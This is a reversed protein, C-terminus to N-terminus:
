QFGSFRSRPLCLTSALHLFSSYLPYHHAQTCVFVSRSVQLGDFIFRLSSSDVNKHSCFAEFVKSMPDHMFIKFKKAKEGERRICIICKEDSRPQVEEVEDAPMKADVDMKDMRRNVPEEEAQTEDCASVDASASYLLGRQTKRTQELLASITRLNEDALPKRKTSLNATIRAIEEEVSDEDKKKDKSKAEDM